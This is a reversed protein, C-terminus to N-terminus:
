MRISKGQFIRENSSGTEYENSILVSTPTIGAFKKKILNSRALRSVERQKMEDTFEQGMRELAPVPEIYCPDYVDASDRMNYIAQLFLSPDKAHSEAWDYEVRNINYNFFDYNSDEHLVLKGGAAGVCAIIKKAALAYLKVRHEM